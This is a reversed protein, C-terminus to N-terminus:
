DLILAHTSHVKSQKCAATGSFTSISQASLSDTRFFDIRQILLEAAVLSLLLMSGSYIQAWTFKFSVLHIWPM